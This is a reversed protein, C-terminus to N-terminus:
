CHVAQVCQIESRKIGKSDVYPASLPIVSDRVATRLSATVPAHLRLTERIVADLYPLSNLEDFTPTPSSVGSIETRLKDQAFKNISLAYLAWTISVSFRIKLYGTSLSFNEQKRLPKTELWSSHQSKQIISILPSALISCLLTSVAWLRSM